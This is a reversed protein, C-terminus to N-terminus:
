LSVGEVLSSILGGVELVVSNHLGFEDVVGGTLVLGNGLDDSDVSHGGAEALYTLGNSDVCFKLM